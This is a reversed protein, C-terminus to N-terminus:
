NEKVAYLKFIVIAALVPLIAEVWHIDGTLVFSLVVPVIPWLGSYIILAPKRYLLLAAAVGLDILGVIFVSIKALTTPIGVGLLLSIFSPELQLGKVGHLVFVFVLYSIAILGFPKKILFEYNKKLLHKEKLLKSFAFYYAIVALVAILYAIISYNFSPGTTDEALTNSSPVTEEEASGHGAVSSVTILLVLLLIAYIRM